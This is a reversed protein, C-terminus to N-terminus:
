LGFGVTDRDPGLVQATGAFGKHEFVKRMAQVRSSRVELL